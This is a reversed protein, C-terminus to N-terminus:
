KEKKINDYDILPPPNQFPLSSLKASFMTSKEIYREGWAGIDVIRTIIFGFLLVGAAVGMFPLCFERWISIPRPRAFVPRSIDEVSAMVRATFGNDAVAFRGEKLTQNVNKM